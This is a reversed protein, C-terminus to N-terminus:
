KNRFTVKFCHHIKENRKYDLPITKRTIDEIHFDLLADRDLEFRMFNNSFYLEGGPELRKMALQILSVHDRQVDLVTETRKSNSFTPPDLFIVDFQKKSEGLWTLCDAQVVDHNTESLGNLALNARAWDCYAPSLDVTTTSRAEGLAAQVSAVGTYAFLNLFRKGKMIASFHQRLSRHDLFLGTDLYDGLNILLKARGESIEYFQKQGGQQQYQQNGKQRQRLKIFLQNKRLGFLQTVVEEATKIRSAAKEANITKPALYEQLHFRGKYVDLAFNFDPLDADYLRFCTISEKKLWKELQKYNKVLRNKLDVGASLEIEQFNLQFCRDDKGNVPIEYSRLLCPLAGNFLRLSNVSQLRMADLLTVDSCIVAASWGQFDRKLKDGLHQYFYKLAEKDGLREGYPPNTIFAGLGENLPNEVCALERREVHIHEGLGVSYINDRAMSIIDRGSDFGIFRPWNQTDELARKKKEHAELLLESWLAVDHKKWGLFGFYARGLAPAIDAYMMAAEILLTGSGCLPDMVCAPAVGRRIGVARAIAAALNEKLPAEGTLLRYGRKHLGEGSLDIGLVAETGQIFLYLPVDPKVIQISPRVGYRERFWDVVADKVVLAAFKSHRIGEESSHRQHNNKQRDAGKPQADDIVSQVAFTQDVAFHEDWPISHAASYIDQQVVAEFTHLPFLVRSAFRSWLCVSYAAKLDGRFCVSSPTRKEIVGGFSVIEEELWLELGPTCTAVFQLLDCSM